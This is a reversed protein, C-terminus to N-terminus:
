GARQGKVDQLLREALQRSQAARRPEVQRTATLREVRLRRSGASAEAIWSSSPGSRWGRGIRQRHLDRLRRDHDVRRPCRLASPLM